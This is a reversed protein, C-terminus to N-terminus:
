AFTFSVAGFGPAAKASEALVAAALKAAAWVITAALSLGAKLCALYPKSFDAAASVIRQVGTKAAKMGAKVLKVGAAAKSTGKEVAATVAATVGDLM